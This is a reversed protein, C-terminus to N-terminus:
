PNTSRAGPGAPYLGVFGQTGPDVDVGITIQVSLLLIPSRRGARLRALDSAVGRAM